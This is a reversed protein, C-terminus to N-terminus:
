GSVQYVTSCVAINCITYFFAIEIKTSRKEKWSLPYKIVRYREISLDLM